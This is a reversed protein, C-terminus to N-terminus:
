ENEFHHRQNKGANRESLHSRNGDGYQFSWYFFAREDTIIKAKTLNSEQYITANKGFWDKLANTAGSNHLIAEVEVVKGGFIYVHDNIYKTVSFDKGFGPVKEKPIVPEDTIAIDEMFEIRFCTLDSYKEYDSLLYYRGFNNVLYYPSVGHFRWEDHKKEMKGDEGYRLYAFTIKRKKRIAESLIEINLFVDKNPTRNVDVSKYLYYFSKRDHVSLCSSIEECLKKAQSGSISKSSFIADVLFSVESEDFTRSLLAYGGKPDKNIDYGAEELLSLSRAVAKREMKLGYKDALLDIIEQQTLFHSSDSEEELVKLIYILSAKKSKM